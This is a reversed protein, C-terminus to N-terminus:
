FEVVVLYTVVEQVFLLYMKLTYNISSGWSRAILVLASIMLIFFNNFERNWMSVTFMVYFFILPDPKSFTGTRLNPFLLSVVEKLM